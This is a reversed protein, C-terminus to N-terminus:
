EHSKRYRELDERKVWYFVRGGARECPETIQNAKAYMGINVVQYGCLAKTAMIAEKKSGSQVFEKLLSEVHESLDLMLLNFLVKERYQENRTFTELTEAATQPLEGLSTGVGHGALTHLAASRIKNTEDEDRVMEELREVIEPYHLYPLCSKIAVERVRRKEDRLGALIGEMARDGYQGKLVRLMLVRVNRDDSRLGELATAVIEECSPNGIEQFVEEETVSSDPDYVYVSRLKRMQELTLM